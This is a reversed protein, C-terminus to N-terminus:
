GQVKMRSSEKGRRAGVLVCATSVIRDLVSALDLDATVLVVADLLARLRVTEEDVTVAGSELAAVGFLM